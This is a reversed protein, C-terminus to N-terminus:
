KAPDTGKEKIFELAEKAVRKESVLDLCLGCPHNVCHSDCGSPGDGRFNYREIKELANLAVDLSAKVILYKTQLEHWDKAAKVPNYRVITGLEEISKEIM